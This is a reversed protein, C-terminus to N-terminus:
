SKDHISLWSRAYYDYFMLIDTMLNCEMTRSLATGGTKEDNQLINQFRRIHVMFGRFIM